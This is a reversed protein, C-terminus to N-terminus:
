PGLRVGDAGPPLSLLDFGRGACAAEFDRAATIDGFFAIAVDGGGAGSPKAAGGHADAIRGIEALRDEVIPAGANRGLAEMAHAHERVADALASVNGEDLAHVLADAAADIASVDREHAAPDRVAYADVKEVLASTRAEVGTWVVRMEVSSPWAVRRSEHRAGTRRWAVTGGLVAAAVDAGSGRPSVSRHAELALDLIQGRDGDHSPDRGHAAFVLAASAAAAASSSGLGLKRGDGRLESVDITMAGRTAGLAREALTRALLAEPPLRAEDPSGHAPGTSGDGEAAPRHLTARARRPVATVLAWGGSLVSYEGAIMLKGPASTGIM